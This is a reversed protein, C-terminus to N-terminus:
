VDKKKAKVAGTILHKDINLFPAEFLLSFVFAVGFSFCVHAVFTQAYFLKTYRVTSQMSYSLYTMVVPHVLYACYTMRSLPVFGRWALLDNVWGGRGCHCALIVYAVGISWSTRAFANYLASEATSFTYTSNDGKYLGYLSLICLAASILWLLLNFVWHISLKGKTKWIIYGFLVGVGYAQYRTWPTVYYYIFWTSSLMAQPSQEAAGVLSLGLDRQVTVIVSVICSLLITAISVLVGVTEKWYILGVIFPCVLFFQFDNALYWSWAACESGSQYINNVYLLTAWSNNKCNLDVAPTIPWLPGESLHWLGYTWFLIMFALAPTLRLYRHLYLVPVTKLFDLGGIQRRHFDKLMLYATLLGSIMFFTDVSVTANTIAQFLFESVWNIVVLPASVSPLSFLLSHGLMVWTISIFRVGHISEITGPAHKAVLLKYGNTYCSFMLFFRKVALTGREVKSHPQYHQPPRLDHEDSTEAQILCGDEDSALRDASVSLHEGSSNYVSAPIPLQHVMYYMATGHILYDYLGASVCLLIMIGYVAYATKALGSWEKEEALPQCIATADPYVSSPPILQLVFNYFEAADHANCASPVCLGLQYPITVNQGGTSTTVQHSGTCYRGRIDTSNLSMCEPYDGLWNFDSALIGAEPKGWADFIQVAWLEGDLLSDLTETLQDACESTINEPFLHQAFKHSVLPDNQLLHRFDGLDINASSSIPSKNKLFNEYGESLQMYPSSAAEGLLFFCSVLVFICAAGLFM